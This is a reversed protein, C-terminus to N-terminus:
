GPPLPAVKIANAMGPGQTILVIIIVVVVIMFIAFMWPLGRALATALAVMKDDKYTEQLEKNTDLVFRTQESRIPKQSFSVPNSDMFLTQKYKKNLAKIQKLEEDTFKLEKEAYRLPAFVGDKTAIALYKRNSRLLGINKVPIIDNESINPGLNLEISDRKKGCVVICKGYTEHFHWRGIKHKLIISKESCEYIDIDIPNHKFKNFKLTYIIIGIMLGMIMTFILTLVVSIIVYFSVEDM